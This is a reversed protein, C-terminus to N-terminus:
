KFYNKSIETFAYDLWQTLIELDAAEVTGGGWIRIGAPAARYAAIDYAINEKALLKVIEKVFSNQQESDLEQYKNDSIKLCISTSSITETKEALFDIWSSESIWKKIINLNNESRSIMAKEGGIEKVWNLSDLADEVALMSPTNITAGSFIAADIKGKKKIRFIKPLPRNPEFTELREVAKPSLILMGHAAESGLVKQWSFTTADLKHWPMKYAFIASTADCITIATRDDSIFDCNAVKVGSTTGNFAFVLDRDKSAVTLDPLIGYDAHYLKLDDLKLEKQADIAWDSSFSEWSFVDVGKAGLLNWMALEVAGTDSAPVIGVYFDDPINLLEKTLTIIKNLKEKQCSARHSRGPNFNSLNNIDWGPRKACPGSSFCPNNPKQKPQM